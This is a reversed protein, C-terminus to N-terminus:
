QFALTLCEHMRAAKGAVWAEVDGLEGAETMFTERM